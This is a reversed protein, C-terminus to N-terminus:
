IYPLMEARPPACLPSPPETSVELAFLSSKVPSTSRRAGFPDAPVKSRSGLSMTILAFSEVLSMVVDSVTGKVMVALM